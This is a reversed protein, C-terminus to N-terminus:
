PEATPRSMMKSRVDTSVSCHVCFQIIWMLQLCHSNACNIRCWNVSIWAIDQVSDCHKVCQIINGVAPCCSDQSRYFLVVQKRDRQWPLEQEHLNQQHLISQDLKCIFKGFIYCMVVCQAPKCLLVTNCVEIFKWFTALTRLIVVHFEVKSVLVHAICMLNWLPWEASIVQLTSYLSWYWKNFLKGM